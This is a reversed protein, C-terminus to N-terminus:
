FDLIYRIFIYTLVMVVFLIDFVIIFKLGKKSVKPEGAVDLKNEKYDRFDKITYCCLIVFVIVGFAIFIYHFVNGIARFDIPLVDLFM